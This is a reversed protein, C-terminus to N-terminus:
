GYGLPRPEEITPNLRKATRKRYATTLDRDLKTPVYTRKALDTELGRTLGNGADAQSYFQLFGDLHKNCAMRSLNEGHERKVSRRWCRPEAPLPTFIM